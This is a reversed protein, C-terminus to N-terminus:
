RRRSVGESCMVGGGDGAMISARVVTVVWAMGSVGTAVWVVGGDGERWEGFCSRIAYRGQKHGHYKHSVQM